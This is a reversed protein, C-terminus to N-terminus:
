IGLRNLTKKIEMDQIEWMKEISSFLKDHLNEINTLSPSLKEINPVKLSDRLNSMDREYKLMSQELRERMNSSTKEHELKFRDLKEGVKSIEIICASLSSNERRSSSKFNSM